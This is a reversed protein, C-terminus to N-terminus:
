GTFVLLNSRAFSRRVFRRGEVDITEHSIHQAKPLINCRRKGARTAGLVFFYVMESVHHDLHNIRRRPGLSRSRERTLIADRRTRRTERDRPPTLRTMGSGGGGGAEEVAMVTADKPNTKSKGARQANKKEKVKRM